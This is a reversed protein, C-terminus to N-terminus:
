PIQCTPFFANAIIKSSQGRTVNSAPRFYPRNSPAVCPEGPGGCAYGQMVNRSALRQVFEYFTYSSPVDQFTQGVVPENFGAANSVIKASQGRTANAFPRFYPRNNVCPEGTGGCTYGQMHGRGALREIWVYFTSSPTVDAFTQGSITESYGASNSVIKALQGRTVQNNPRFTGDAYGSIIGRCVLCRVPLYFAHAPPVDSFEIECGTATASPIVTGTGVTPTNVPTRTLTSVTTPTNSGPTNSAVVTGTSQTTPVPTSPPTPTTVPIPNDHLADLYLGFGSPSSWEQASEVSTGEGWENFTTVLQWAASSAAMDRVNQNWRGL